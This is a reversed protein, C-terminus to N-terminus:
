SLFSKARQIRDLVRNSTDSFQKPARVGDRLDINALIEATCCLIPAGRNVSADGTMMGINEPGFDRCLELFKENILAKIPYTYISQKSQSASLFHLVAAVQSKGSGTHTNLIVNKSSFIQLIAKEVTRPLARHWEGGCLRPLAGDACRPRYHLATAQALFGYKLAM